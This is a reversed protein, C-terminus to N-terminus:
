MQVNRDVKRKISDYKREEEIRKKWYNYLQRLEENLQVIDVHPDDGDYEIYEELTTHLTELEKFTRLKLIIPRFDEQEQYCEIM